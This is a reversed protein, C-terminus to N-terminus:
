SCYKYSIYCQYILLYKIYCFIFGKFFACATFTNEMIKFFLYNMKIKMRDIFLSIGNGKMLSFRLLFQM